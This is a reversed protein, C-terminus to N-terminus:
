VSKAKVRTIVEGCGFVWFHLYVAQFLSYITLLSPSLQALSSEFQFQFQTRTSKLNAANLKNVFISFAVKVAVLLYGGCFMLQWFKTVEM